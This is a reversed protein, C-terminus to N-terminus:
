EMVGNEEVYINDFYRQEEEILYEYNEYWMNPPYM